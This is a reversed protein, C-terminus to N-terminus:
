IYKAQNFHNISLQFELFTEGTLIELPSGGIVPTTEPWSWVPTGRWMIMSADGSCLMYQQEWVLGTVTKEWLEECELHNNRQHHQCHQTHWWGLHPCESFNSFYKVRVMMMTWARHWCSLWHGVRLEPGPLHTGLFSGIQSTLLLNDKKAPLRRCEGAFNM